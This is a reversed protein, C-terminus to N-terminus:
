KPMCAQTPQHTASSRVLRPMRQPQTASAPRCGARKRQWLFVHYCIHCDLVIEGASAAALGQRVSSHETGAKRNLLAAPALFPDRVYSAADRM